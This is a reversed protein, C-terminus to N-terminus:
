PRDHIHGQMDNYLTTSTVDHPEEKGGPFKRLEMPHMLYLQCSIVGLYVVSAGQFLQIDAAGAEVPGSCGPFSTPFTSPFSPNCFTSLIHGASDKGLRFIKLM